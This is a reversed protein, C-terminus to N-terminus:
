NAGRLRAQLLWGFRADADMRESVDTLLRLILIAQGDQVRRVAIGSQQHHRVSEAAMTSSGESCLGNHVTGRRAPFRVRGILVRCLEKPFHHMLAIGRHM